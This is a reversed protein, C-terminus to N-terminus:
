RVALVTTATTARARAAPASLPHPPPPPSWAPEVVVRAGRVEVESAGGVEVVEVVEVVDVVVSGDVVDVVPAVVPGGGVVDGVVPVVAGGDPPGATSSRRPGLEDRV